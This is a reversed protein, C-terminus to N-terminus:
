LNMRTVIFALLLAGGISIGLAYSRVLGNQLPRLKNGVGVTGAAIGNVAGDVVTGDFDAIGQFGAEGPGGVVKAYTEDIYWGHAFVPQEFTSAKLKRRGYVWYGLFIGLAATTVAGSALGWLVPASPLHHEYVITPELWHELRKFQNSFPLNLLGAGVALGALVVLPTTMTWPSERPTHDPTLGHHDDHGDGHDAAAHALAPEDSGEVDAEEAAEHADDTERWKEEGFFTMWVQRTMYFATMLAVLLGIGWLVPGAPGSNFSGALVEDKSWFGSLPPVGAIALWGIIFTVFTVPLYKRLNGYKRMDQEHSMAMIVSGSGLFLLAKFFAHTVMHFVGAVYTQTGVALFMYGLQSVTSYALVKKIDNQAIAITAAVLATIAGTWAIVDNAWGAQAMIPNLRTILYVGATVMTAAHILASVPTPGAMADPLWVYLPLQASKGVAGLFFLLAIATATGGAILPAAGRIDTYNISGVTLFVLFTGLMFGFDGIRNTVFAKKGASANAPDTHWFSILLYSCAGVGEWGLFTLLLNDGLVLLLMSAIFLNLYIFFKSFKEDGKMYGISYLHILAGIGTIFLCMLISLPDALFGISVEFSGSPLWTFLTQTFQREEAPLALLDLFVKVVVLFSAAVIGTAFWGAKPDGLRRGAVVLALFGFLPLCPILWILDV